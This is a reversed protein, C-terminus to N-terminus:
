ACWSSGPQPHELHDQYAQYSAPDPASQSLSWRPIGKEGEAEWSTVIHHHQPNAKLSWPGLTEPPVQGM